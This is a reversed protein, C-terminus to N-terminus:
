LVALSESSLRCGKPQQLAAPLPCLWLQSRALYGLVKWVETPGPCRGVESCCSQMLTSRAKVLDFALGAGPISQPQRGQGLLALASLKSAAPAPHYRCFCMASLEVSTIVAQWM